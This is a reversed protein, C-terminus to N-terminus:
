AFVGAQSQLPVESPLKQGTLIGVFESPTAGDLAAIPHDHWWGIWRTADFSITDGSEEM